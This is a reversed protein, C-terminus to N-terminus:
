LLAAPWSRCRPLMPKWEELTTRGKLKGRVRGACFAVSVFGLLKRTEKSPRLCNEFGGFPAYGLVYAAGPLQPTGRFVPAPAGEGAPHLVMLVAAMCFCM